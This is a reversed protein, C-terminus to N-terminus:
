VAIVPVGILLPHLWIIIAAYILLGAVVVIIDNYFNSPPATESPAGVAVPRRAISIRAFVGWVLFSGFLVMSGFDGNVTLHAVAWLIIATIMPHKVASRVYTPVYAALLLIVALLMLLMAVDRMFAPPHWLTIVGSSRYLGFGYITLILGILSVASYLAKYIRESGLATILSQRVGRLMSTVHAGLLLFLGTALWVM